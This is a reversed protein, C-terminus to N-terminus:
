VSIGLKKVGEAGWGPKLAEITEEVLSKVAKTEPLPGGNKVKELTKGTMERLRNKEIYDLFQTYINYNAAGGQRVGAQKKFNTVKHSLKNNGFSKLTIDHAGLMARAKARENNGINIALPRGANMFVDVIATIKADIPDFIYDWSCLVFAAESNCYMGDSSMYDFFLKRFKPQSFKFTTGQDIVFKM